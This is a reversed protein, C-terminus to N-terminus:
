AVRRRKCVPAECATDASQRREAQVCVAKCSGQIQEPAPPVPDRLLSMGMLLALGICHLHMTNGGMKGLSADSIANPIKMRHLPFGHLLLKECPLIPRGAAGVCLVGGPTITPCVGNTRPHVREISQSVNAIINSSKQREQALRWVERQRASSLPMPTAGRFGLVAGSLQYAAHKDQWKSGRSTETQVVQNRFLKQVEPDNRPLMRDVVHDTVPACAARFCQQCLKAIQGSDAMICADRRWLLFYFRPRSVPEGLHESDIPMRVIHYWRLRELDRLVKGMVRILGGVNELIALPPRKERLVRLLEFYAKANPDKFLKTDHSRLSSYPTCPFGCVYIDVDPLDAIARKMMNSFFIEPPSASRILAEVSADHDCSFVHKHPVELARLAWVPAEAGSCDTGIRFHRQALSRFGQVGQTRLCQARINEIASRMKPGWSDLHARAKPPVVYSRLASSELVELSGAHSLARPRSRPAQLQKQRPATPAPPRGLSGLM